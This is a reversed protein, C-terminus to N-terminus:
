ETAREAIWARFVDARHCFDRFQDLSAAAPSLLITDGPRSREWCWDLAEILHDVVAVPQRAGVAALTEGLKAGLAGYCAIGAARQALQRCLPELAVGKDQGGVLVWTPGACAALASLTAEPTTSKSDDIFHRGAITGAAEQRHPLTHFAALAEGIAGAPVGFAEAMAAALAANARQHDGAVALRGVRDLRWPAIRRAGAPIPWSSLERDHPNFVALGGAPLNELLRRKAAVYAPLTGHWDLHNPTCNTVVAASPFRAQPSLHALQFSSLELVVIDPPGIADLSPLLSTGINGGLWVPRGASQFMAALMSATSSKGNSGTVGIVAAPCCGLFLEIESTLAAGGTRAVELLPHDPRVAPNVVVADASSFDSAAHGGLHWHAIAVDTLAEISPGLAQADALDTVTVRAGHQALWRAAAVGGGHRGLGMVTIRRGAVEM